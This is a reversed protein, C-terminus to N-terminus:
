LGRMQLSNGWKDWSIIGEIELDGDMYAEGLALSTSTLLRSVPIPKKFDVTFVPQGTGVQYEHDQFRIRFPNDDFRELFQVMAKEEVSELM